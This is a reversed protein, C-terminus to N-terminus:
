PVLATAAHSHATPSQTPRPAVDEPCPTNCYCNRGKYDQYGIFRPIQPSAAATCMPVSAHISLTARQASQFRSLVHREASSACRARRDTRRPIPVHPPSVTHSVTEWVGVLQPTDTGTGSGTGVPLAGTKCCKINDLLPLRIFRRGERPRVRRFYRLCPSESM